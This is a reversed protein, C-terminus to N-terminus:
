RDAGPLTSTPAAAEVSLGAMLDIQRIGRNRRLAVKAQAARVDRALSEAAAQAANRAEAFTTPVALPDGLLPHEHWAPAGASPSRVEMNGHRYDQWVCEAAGQLIELRRNAATIAEIARDARDACDTAANAGSELLSQLRDTVQDAEASTWDALANRMAMCEIAAREVARGSARLEAAYGHFYRTVEWAALGFGVIGLAALALTEWHLLTSVPSEIRQLIEAPTADLGDILAARTAAMAWVVSLAILALLVAACLRLVRIPGRADEFRPPRLALFAAAGGLGMVIASVGLGQVAAAPAGLAHTLTFFAATAEIALLFIIAAWFHDTPQWGARPATAHAVQLDRRFARRADEVAVAQGLLGASESELKATLKEDFAAPAAEAQGDLRAGASALPNHRMEAVLSTLDGQAQAESVHVFEVGRHFVEREFRSPISSGGAPRNAAGDEGGRDRASDGAQLRARLGTSTWEIADPRSRGAAANARGRARTDFFIANM